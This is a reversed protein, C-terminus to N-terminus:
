EDEEELDFVRSIDDDDIMGAYYLKVVAEAPDIDFEELLDELSYDDLYHNVMDILTENM